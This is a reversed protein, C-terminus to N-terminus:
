CGHNHAHQEFKEKASNFIRKAIDLRRKLLGIEASVAIGAVDALDKVMVSYVRM